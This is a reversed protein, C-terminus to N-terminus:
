CSGTAIPSAPSSVQQAFSTAGSGLNAVEEWFGLWGTAREVSISAIGSLNIADWRLEITTRDPDTINAEVDPVVARLNVITLPEYAPADWNPM